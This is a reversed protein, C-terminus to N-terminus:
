AARRSISAVLGCGICLAIVSSSGYSIFPLTVGTMPMLGTMSAINFFSQLAIWGAVGTALFIGFADPARKAIYLCRWVIALLAAMLGLTIIFGMEEAIIAFISDGAVEPLYLYKQRSHGYGLGFIGGSGVALFAQNIHYGIGNPDLEPHLFTMFRAARYPSFRILFAVLGVAAATLTVFWTLPAGAAFYILLASGAIVMMSGTNPQKVLLFMILGLALLFPVLGKEVTRAGNEHRSALWASVYFLFTVKVFESPQFSLPGFKVWRSSGGIHLGIGPIYVLILLIISVILAPLALVRLKRYDFRSVFLFLLLGPLAGVLIQHKFYYLSDGTKQYGLPGSASMLMILGFAILGIVLWFFTRDIKIKSEHM